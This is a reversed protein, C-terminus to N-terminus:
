EEDGGIYQPQQDLVDNWEDSDHSALSKEEEDSDSAFAAELARRKKEEAHQEQRARDERNVKQREREDTVSFKPANDGQVPNELPLTRAALLLKPRERGNFEENSRTNTFQYM